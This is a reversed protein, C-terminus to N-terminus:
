KAIITQENVIRNKIPGILQMGVYSCLGLIAVILLIQQRSM